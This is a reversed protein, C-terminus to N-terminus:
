VARSPCSHFSCILLSVCYQNCRCLFSIVRCSKHSITNSYSNQGRRPYSGQGPADTSKGPPSRPLTLVTYERKKAAPGADSIGIRGTCNRETDASIIPTTIQKLTVSHTSMMNTFRTGNRIVMELFLFNARNLTIPKATVRRENDFM